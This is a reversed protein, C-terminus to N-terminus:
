RRKQTGILCILLLINISQFCRQAPANVYAQVGKCKKGLNLYCDNLEGRFTLDASTDNAKGKPQSINNSKNKVQSGAKYATRSILSGWRRECTILM